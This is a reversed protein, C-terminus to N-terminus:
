RIEISFENEKAMKVRELYYQGMDNGAAASKSLWYIAKELDKEVVDGNVYLVGLKFQTEDNGLESAQQYIEFSKKLDKECAFGFKYCDGLINLAEHNKGESLIVSQNAYKFATEDDNIMLSLAAVAYASQEDGANAEIIKCERLEKIEEENM